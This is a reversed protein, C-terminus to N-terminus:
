WGHYLLFLMEIKKMHFFNFFEMGNWEMGNWELKKLVDPYIMFFHIVVDSMMVM